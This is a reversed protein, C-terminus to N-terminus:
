GLQRAVGSQADYVSQHLLDPRTRHNEHYSPSRGGQVDNNIINAEVYSKEDSELSNVAQGVNGLDLAECVDKEVFWPQGECEIVRVAGFAENEFIKLENM